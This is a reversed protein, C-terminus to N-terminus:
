HINQLEQMVKVHNDYVKAFEKNISDALAINQLNEEYDLEKNYNYDVMRISIENEIDNAIVKLLGQGHGIPYLTFYPGQYYIYENDNDELGWFHDLHKKDIFQQMIVCIAKLEVTNLHYYTATKETFEKSIHFINQLYTVVAKTSGDIKREVEETTRKEKNNQMTELYAKNAEGNQIIFNIATTKRNTTRYSMKVNFLCSKNIAEVAPKIVRNHFSKFQLYKKNADDGLFFERLYDVNYLASAVEKKTQYYNCNYRFFLLLLLKAAHESPMQNLYRLPINTFEKKLNLLYCSMEQSFAITVKGKDCYCYQMLHIKLWRNKDNVDQIKIVKKMLEDTAKNIRRYIDKNNSFGLIKSLNAVSITIKYLRDDDVSSITSLMFYYIKSSYYGLDYCAKVLPNLITIWHNNESSLYSDVNIPREELEVPINQNQEQEQM